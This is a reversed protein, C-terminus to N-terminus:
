AANAAKATRYAKVGKIGSEVAKELVPGLFVDTAGNLGIEFLAKSLEM